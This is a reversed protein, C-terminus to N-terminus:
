KYFIDAGAAKQWGDASGSPLSTGSTFIGYPGSTASSVSGKPLGFTEMTVFFIKSPKRDFIFSFIDDTSTLEKVGSQLHFKTAFKILLKGKGNRFRITIDGLEVGEDYRFKGSSESGMLLDREIKSQGELAVTGPVGQTRGDPLDYLLEYDLSKADIKIKDIGLKLWHGDESPTLSVIPRDELSVEIQSSTEEAPAKAPKRIVLFYVGVLVLVGFLFLAIPLYKKM